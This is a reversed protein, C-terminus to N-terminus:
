QSTALASKWINRERRVAKEFAEPSDPLDSDILVDIGYDIAVANFLSQIEPANLRKGLLETFYSIFGAIRYKEKNLSIKPRPPKPIAESLNGILRKDEKSSYHSFWKSIRPHQIITKDLRLLKDLSDPDGLRAKRFIRGPSEHYLFLCPFDVKMLFLFEPAVINELVYERAEDNLPTDDIDNKVYSVLIKYIEELSITQAQANNKEITQPQDKQTLEKLVHALFSPVGDFESFTSM